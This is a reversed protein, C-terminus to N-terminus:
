GITYALGRGESVVIALYDKARQLYELTYDIDDETRASYPGVDLKTRVLREDVLALDSAIAGVAEATLAAEYPIWGDHTNTVDGSVLALGARQQDNEREFLVRRLYGFAKDLDLYDDWRGDTDRNRIYSASCFPCEDNQAREVDEAAISIALYRIGM